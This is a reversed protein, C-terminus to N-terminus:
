ESEEGRRDAIIRAQDLARGQEISLDDPAKPLLSLPDVVKGLSVNLQVPGAFSSLNFSDRFEPRLRKLVFMLLLDSPIKYRDCIRGEYTVVHETGVTAREHLIDILYDAAMDQAEHFAKLYKEDKKMWFYHLGRSIMAIECAKGIQGIQFFAALFAKKKPHAIGHFLRKEVEALLDKSM